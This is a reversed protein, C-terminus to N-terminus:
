YWIWVYYKLHLNKLVYYRSECRWPKESNHGSVIFSNILCPIAVILGRFSNVKCWNAAGCKEGTPLGASGLVSLPLPVFPLVYLPPPSRVVGLSNSVSYIIFRQIQSRSRIALRSFTKTCILFEHLLTSYETGGRQLSSSKRAVERELILSPLSFGSATSFLYKLCVSLQRWCSPPM